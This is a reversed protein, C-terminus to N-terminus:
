QEKKIIVSGVGVMATGLGALLWVPWRNLGTQPLKHGPLQELKPAGDIDYVANGGIYLPLSVCFPKMPYYGAAAEEQVLLYIGPELETFLVIGNGDVIQTRSRYRRVAADVALREPKETDAQEPLLYLSVSGGAVPESESAMTLRISGEQQVEGASVPIALLIMMLLMLLKRAMM